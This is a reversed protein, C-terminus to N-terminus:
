NLYSYDDDCLCRKKLVRGWNGHSYVTADCYTYHHDCTFGSGDHCRSCMESEGIPPFGCCGSLFECDVHEHKGDSNVSYPVDNDVTM